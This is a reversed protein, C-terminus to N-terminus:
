AGVIGTKVLWEHTARAAEDYVDETSTRTRKLYKFGHGATHILHLHAKKGLDDIVGKYLDQQTFTDRDGSVFLMPTQIDALHAAREIGPRGPAHLPFSFFTLGKVGEMEEEAAAISTMRGGFSHGGALLPLGDSLTLAQKAANRVTALSVKQSDRGGGREMYPFQYRFTAIGLKALAAVLSEMHHHTMGAGAGHGLSILAKAQEPVLLLASVQGKDPHAEFTYETLKMLNRRKLYVWGGYILM